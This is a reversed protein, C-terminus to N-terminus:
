VTIMIVTLGVAIYGGRWGLNAILNGTIPQIFAGLIGGSATLIGLALGKRKTFWREILVPGALVNILVAGVAFPVAFIYWGWVYHMVGSIAFARGQIIIGGTLMTRSDYNVFFKSCSPLLIM